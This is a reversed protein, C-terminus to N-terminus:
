LPRRGDNVPRALANGLAEPALWTRLTILARRINSKVTGLPMGTQGAIEEHTLGGFFALSVLQRPVPGLRMLASQLLHGTQVASLLDHPDAATREHVDTPADDAHGLSDVAVCMAQVRKRARVADLARSRAITLLWALACGRAPDFRPAQRWVQWFTDEAVEEATATDRVIRMALGFVRGVTSQYLDALAKEDQRVIQALWAQLQLEDAGHLAPLPADNAPDDESSADLESAVHGGPMADLFDALQAAGPHLEDVACAGWQAFSASGAQSIPGSITQSLSWQKCPYGACCKSERVDSVVSRDFWICGQM